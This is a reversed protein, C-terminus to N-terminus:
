ENSKEKEKKNYRNVFKKDVSIDNFVKEQETLYCSNRPIFKWDCNGQIFHKFPAYSFNEVFDYDRAINTLAIHSGVPPNKGDYQKELAELVNKASQWFNWKKALHFKPINDFGNFEEYITYDPGIVSYVAKDGNKYTGLGLTSYGQESEWGFDTLSNIYIDFDKRINSGPKYLRTACVNYFEDLSNEPNDYNPIHKRISKKIERYVGAMKIESNEIYKNQYLVSITVEDPQLKAVMELDSNLITWDRLEKTWYTILDIALNFGLSKAYNFMDIGNLVNTIRKQEKLMDENFTQFCFVLTTFNWKKLVDLFSKTIVGPHIEIVKPTNKFNSPFFSCFKDFDDSTLYNPTGGGFNYLVIDNLDYTNILKPMYEFYFKEVEEPTHEGKPCGKHMCYKCNGKTLCFPNHIYAVIPRTNKEWYKKVEDLSIIDDEEFKLKEYM